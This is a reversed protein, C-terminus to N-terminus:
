MPWSVASNPTDMSRRSAMQRRDKERWIGDLWRSHKPEPFYSLWLTKLALNFAQISCLPAFTNWTSVTIKLVSVPPSTRSPNVCHECPIFVHVIIRRFGSFWTTFLVYDTVSNVHISRYLFLDGKGLRWLICNVASSFRYSIAYDRSKGRDSKIQIPVLHRQRIMSVVKDYQETRNTSYSTSIYLDKYADTRKTKKKTNTPFFRM